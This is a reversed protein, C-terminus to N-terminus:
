SHCQVGQPILIKNLYKVQQSTITLLQIDKELILEKKKLDLSGCLPPPVVELIEIEEYEM